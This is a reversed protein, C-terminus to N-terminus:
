GNDDPILEKGKAYQPLHEDRWLVAWETASTWSSRFRNVGIHIFPIEEAYTRLRSDARLKRYAAQEQLSVGSVTISLDAAIAKREQGKFHIRNLIDRQRESKLRGLAARVELATEQRNEEEILPEDFPLVSPDPIMDLRSIDCDEEGTLPEDLYDLALPPAGTSSFGLARRMASRIWNFAYSAFSKGEAPNYKSQANLLACRGVQQLDDQDIAGTRELVPTYRRAIKRIFADYQAVVAAPDAGPIDKDLIDTDRM